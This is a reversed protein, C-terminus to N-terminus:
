STWPHRKYCFSYTLKLFSKSPESTLLSILQSVLPWLFFCWSFFSLTHLLTFHCSYFTRQYLSLEQHGWLHTLQLMKPVGLSFNFSHHHDRHLLSFAWHLIIRIIEHVTSTFSHTCQIPKWTVLFYQFSSLPLIFFWQLQPWLNECCLLHQM